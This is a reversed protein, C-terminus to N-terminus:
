RQDNRGQWLSPMTGFGAPRMVITTWDGISIMAWCRAGQAAYAREVALAQENLIGSLILWGAPALHPMASPAMRRLPGALINAFILDYPGTQRVDRGSFGASVVCRMQHPAISNLRLNHAAVRVALPDNDAAMVTASPWLKLGAMGLIASGCGMDLIRSPRKRTTEAIMQAARLCGETTPHTGSGFALAAEILLPYSTAPPPTKVHNGYVWFRGISLPPFAARNEALWDRKELQETVVAVPTLGMAAFQPALMADIVAADPAVLFLAEIHWDEDGDRLHATAESDLLESFVLELNGVQDATVSAPLHLRAAFIDTTMVSM